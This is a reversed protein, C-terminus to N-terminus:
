LNAVIGKGNAFGAVVLEDQGPWAGLPAISAPCPGRRGEDESLCGNSYAWRRHELGEEVLELLGLHRHRELFVEHEHLRMSRSTISRRDLFEVVQRARRQHLVLLVEVAEVQHEAVHELPQLQDLQAHGLVHRGFPQFGQGVLEEGLLLLLLDLLHAAEVLQHLHQRLAHALRLFAALPRRPRRPCARGRCRAAVRGEAGVAIWGSPMRMPWSLPRWPLAILTQSLRSYLFRSSWTSSPVRLM